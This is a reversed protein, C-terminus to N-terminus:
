AQRKDQRRTRAKEDDAITQVIVQRITEAAEPDLLALKAYLSAAAKMSRINLSARIGSVLQASTYGDITPVKVEPRQELAYRMERLGSSGRWVFGCSRCLGTSKELTEIGLDRFEVVLAIIRDASSEDIAYRGGCVPCAAAQPPAGYVDETIELMTPPDFMTEIARVWGEVLRLTSEEEDSLTQGARRRNEFAIFWDRLRSTITRDERANPLEIYWANIQQAIRDFLAQAGPDFPIRASGDSSGGKSGIGGVVADRLRLLLPEHDVVSVCAIDISAVVEGEADRQEVTKSQLVKSTHPKTLKDVALLLYNEDHM